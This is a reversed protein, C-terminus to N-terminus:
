AELGAQAAKGRKGIERWLEEVKNGFAEESALTAGFFSGM